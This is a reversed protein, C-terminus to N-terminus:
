ETGGTAISPAAALVIQRLERKLVKGLANVPMSTLTVVASVRQQRGVRENIWAQLEGCSLTSGRRLVVAAVPTEDWKPHPVGVVAIQEVDPHRGGVDEIDIPYVNQGGTVILDRKRGVYYLFGDGDLRGIDGTRLWRRCQADQLFVAATEQPRNLYGAMLSQSFGVIEGAEGIAAESGDDRLIKLDAGPVPLGVSARKEIGDTSSTITVFGETLGYLELLICGFRARGAEKVDPDVSAGGVVILEVSSLDLSGLAPDKLLQRLMLPVALFHTARHKEIARLFSESEFRPVIAVSGGILLTMLVPLMAANSYFGLASIWVSDENLRLARGIELMNRTRTLHTHAIGKPIGTTGSSYVVTLLDDPACAAAPPETSQAARWEEYRTWNLVAAGVVVRHDAEFGSIARDVRTAEAPTAFVAIAGCDDIQRVVAEDSIALNIPVVTAGCRIVGLVIETTELRNDLLVVVADGRGIGLRSLGNAVQYSRRGLEKWSLSADKFAVARRAGRWRVNLDFYDCFLPEPNAVGLGSPTM